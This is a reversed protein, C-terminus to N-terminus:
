VSFITGFHDVQREADLDTTIVDHVARNSRSRVDDPRAASGDRDFLSPESDVTSALYLIRGKRKKKALKGEGIARKMWEDLQKPLLQLKQAIEPLHKTGRESQFNQLLLPLCRHYCTEPEKSAQTASSESSPSTADGAPSSEAANTPSPISQKLLEVIKNKWLDEEPFPLAGLQKLEAYGNPPNCAIRVFVPIEPPASKNRGLQESAGTWTGGERTKFRVVLAFDALAYIDKNRGIAKGITFGTDPEYPTILTLRGERLPERAERATAARDLRDALVAVAGGGGDLVAAVAARDVGRAGGSVIQVSQEACRQAVRRTFTLAEEDVNRSGVVALGGQNLRTPDGAGYLLPPAAARLHRRLREPYRDEGRSIVWLGLRQWGDLAAALQFGRDLLARLRDASPLGPEAPPLSADGPQVLSAPRRGQHGLWSALANYESLTLPNVDSGGRRPFSACLLLVAQTDPHVSGSSLETSAM